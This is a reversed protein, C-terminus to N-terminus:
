TLTSHSCFCSDLSDSANLQLAICCALKKSVERLCFTSNCLLSVGSLFKISFKDTLRMRTVKQIVMIATHPMPQLPCDLFLRWSCSLRAKYYTPTTENTGDLSFPSSCVTRALTSM